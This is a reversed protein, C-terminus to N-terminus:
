RGIMEVKLGDIFYYMNKDKGKIYCNFFYNITNDLRELRDKWENISLAFRCCYNLAKRYSLKTTGISFKFTAGCEKMDKFTHNLGLM